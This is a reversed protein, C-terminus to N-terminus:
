RARYILNGLPIIGIIALIISLGTATYQLNNEAFVILMSLFSFFLEFAFFGVFITLSIRPMIPRKSRGLLESRIQLLTEKERQVITWLTILTRVDHMDLKPIEKKRESEYLDIARIVQDLDESDVRILPENKYAPSIERNIFDIISDSKMKFSTNLERIQDDKRQRLFILYMGIIGLLSAYAQIISGLISLLSSDM